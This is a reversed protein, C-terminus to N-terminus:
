SSRQSILTLFSHLLAKYDATVKMQEIVNNATTVYDAILKKTQTLAGSRVFIDKVEEVHQKDIQKQSYLTKLRKTDNDAGLMLANCVLFTQKADVIDSSASKGMIQEDGFSGLTDDQLQFAWGFAMGYETLLQELAPTLNGSLTAGMLLPMVGTYEATKYKMVNLIREQSIELARATDLMQGLVVRRIYQSFLNTADFLQKAPLSLGSLAEYAYFYGLDGALIAQSVGFHKDRHNAKAAWVHFSEIGRRLPSQDMIDDHILAGAHFLEPAFSAQYMDNTIEGGCLEYGLCFLAGRIKKGLRSITFFYEVYPLLYPDIEEAAHIQSNAFSEFLPNSVEIYKKIYETALSTNM